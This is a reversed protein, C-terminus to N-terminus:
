GLSLTREIHPNIRTWYDTLSYEVVKPPASILECRMVLGDTELERLSKTFIFNTVGTLRRMLENFRIKEEKHLHWLIEWKWKRCVVGRVISIPDKPTSYSKLVPTFTSVNDIGDNLNYGHPYISDMEVMWFIEQERLKQVTKCEELVEIKFNEVGLRQMEKDVFLNGGKHGKFQEEITRTTHGVYKM